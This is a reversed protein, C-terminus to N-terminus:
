ACRNPSAFRRLVASHRITSFNVMADLVEMAQKNTLLDLDINMFKKITNLDKSSLNIPEGTFPDVKNNIMGDVIGQYVSFAKKIGKKVLDAKVGKDGKINGSDDFKQESIIARMEELTFQNSNLGTLDRFSEAAAKDLKRTQEKKAKETFENIANIDVTEAVKVGGDKTSKTKNLGESVIRAQANYADIDNVLNPDIKLFAEVATSVTGEAKKNKLQRKIRKRLNDADKLKKVAGADNNVKTVYDLVQAVARSNNLNVGSIKKILSKAKDLSITGADKLNNIADSLAKRRTTQDKKSDKAAKVELKIQDKLAAAEDVNNIKKKNKGLIKDPSPGKKKGFVGPESAEKQLVDKSKKETESIPERNPDINNVTRINVLTPKLGTLQEFKAELDKEVQSVGSEIDLKGTPNATIFDIVDQIYQSENESTYGDLEQVKTDLDSSPSQGFKNKNKFWFRKM